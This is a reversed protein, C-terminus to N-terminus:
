FEDLRRSRPQAMRALAARVREERFGREGALFATVGAADPPRPPPVEVDAVPPHLFADRAEGWGPGLAALLEPPARELSGWKRLAEVARKPGYGRAGELFDTGVLLAAEVLQERTLGLRALQEELELVEPEVKRFTGRSPLWERGQFSLFRLQRPAGYLLADFDKSAAAWAKGRAALFACQAEADGPAEMWPVGLLDLLRQADLVMDRTLRTSRVAKAWADQADGRALAQERLRAAKDRAARREQLVRRKRPSPPGDFVYFPKVDLEGALRTLKMLLGNLHSTVHGQADRLHEGAGMRLIALFPYIETAADFAITRGRLAEFGIPRPQLVPALNVGM